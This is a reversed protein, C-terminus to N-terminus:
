KNSLLIYNLISYEKFYDQCEETKISIEKILFIIFLENFQKPLNIKNKLYEILKIDKYKKLLIAKQFYFKCLDLYELGEEEFYEFDFLIYKSDVKIINWEAFDGHEYVVKYKNKSSGVFNDLIKRLEFNNQKILQDRLKLIRPHKYLEYEFKSKLEHLIDKIVLDPISTIEGIINKLICYHFGKYCGDLVLYDSDLIDAKILTNIAKVENSLHNKGLENLSFKLYGLIGNSDLLQLVVKDKATAIYVSSIITKKLKKEIFYIFATKEVKLIPLIFKSISNFYVFLFATIAKLFKAKQSFPNYLEFAYKAVKSNEVSLYVRPNSKTPLALYKQNSFFDTVKM